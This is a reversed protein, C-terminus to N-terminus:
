PLHRANWCAAWSNLLSLAMTLFAVQRESYVHRYWNVSQLLYNIVESNSPFQYTSPPTEASVGGGMTAAVIACCAAVQANQKLSWQQTKLAMWRTMCKSLLTMARSTLAVIAELGYQDVFTRDGRAIYLVQRAM